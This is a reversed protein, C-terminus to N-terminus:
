NPMAKYGNGAILGGRDDLEGGANRFNVAVDFGEVPPWSDYVGFHLHPTGMTNGSNGSKAISQGADVWDGVKASISGQMLHAYFAVTGDEHQIMIHNHQGADPEKGDDPLDNKVEKVTGARAATVADGVALLFDYAMQDKHGGNAHCYSQNLWYVRGTPYPLLYPSEAPDGFVARKLCPLPERQSGACAVSLFLCCTVTFYALREAVTKPLAAGLVSRSSITM